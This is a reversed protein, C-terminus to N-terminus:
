PDHTGALEGFIDKADKVIKKAGWATYMGQEWVTTAASSPNGGSTGHVRGCLAEFENKSEFIIKNEGEYGPGAYRWPYLYYMGGGGATTASHDDGLWTYVSLVGSLSTPEGYGYPDIERPSTCAKREEYRKMITAYHENSPDQYAVTTHCFKTLCEEWSSYAALGAGNPTGFGWYNHEANAKLSCEAIAKVFVYEPNVQGERDCIDYLEGLTEKSACFEATAGTKQVYAWAKEVWENKSLVTWVISFHDAQKKEEIGDDLKMYDEIDEVMEGNTDRMMIRLYNGIVRDEDTGRIDEYKGFKSTDRIKDTLEKDTMTRGLVTGEKIFIGDYSKESTITAYPAASSIGDVEPNEPLTNKTRIKIKVKNQTCYTSVAEDKVISEANLQDSAKKSDMTYEEDAEYQSDMVKANEKLNGGSFSNKTIQKFDSMKIKENEPIYDSKKNKSSSKASTTTKTTTGSDSEEDSESGEPEECIFGDIYIINGAIGYKEYQEVFEKYGYITKQLDTWGPYDKEENPKMQDEETLFDKYSNNKGQLSEKGYRKGDLSPLNKINQKFEDELQEYAETNLVLIKAYGVKDKPIKEEVGQTSNEATPITTSNNENEEKSSGNVELQIQRTTDYKYDVNPRYEEDTLENKEEEYTGYELLIGTVPSVVAENGAYGVYEEGEGKSKGWSIRIGYEAGRDWGDSSKQISSSGAENNEYPEMNGTSHTGGNYIEFGDDIKKGLIEIHNNKCLIDGEQLEQGSSIVTCDLNSKIWDALGNALDTHQDDPMVQVNQLAWSVLTACCMNHGGESAQSEVFSRPLGCGHGNVHHCDEGGAGQGMVCYDYGEKNIYECMARTTELFEELSVQSVKQSGDSSEFAYGSSSSSDSSSAAGVQKGVAGESNFGSIGNVTDTKTTKSPKSTDIESGLSTVLDSFLLNQEYDIDGMSHIMAGYENENKDLIRKPYGFSGTDPVLWELLRPTEDTLEEKTFYGLEVSLEKFDRLIYDADLTHTNELMNCATLFDQELSVNSIYDSAKYVQDNGDLKATAKAYSKPVPSLEGDKLRKGEIPGYYDTNLNKSISKRLATIVEATKADGKYAFYKNNLFMNKIKYNTEGRLGNGKQVINGDFVTRVYIRDTTEGSSNTVPEFESSTKGDARGYASWRPKADTGLNEWGLDSYDSVYEARKSVVVNEAEAQEQTGDYYYYGDEDKKIKSSKYKSIDSEETAFNGNSNLVYLIYEGDKTRYKTWREKMMAEYEYDNDVFNVGPEDFFYVNRFWHNTVKYIYPQYTEFSSVDARSTEQLIDFVKEKCVRCITTDDDIDSCRKEHGDDDPFSKVIKYEVYTLYRNHGRERYLDDLAKEMEDKKDKYKSDNVIDAEEISMNGSFDNVMLGNIYSVYAILEYKAGDDKNNWSIKIDGEKSDYIKRIFYTGGEITSKQYSYQGEPITIEVDNTCYRKLELALKREYNLQNESFSKDKNNDYTIDIEHMNNKGLEEEGGNEKVAEIMDNFSMVSNSIDGSRIIRNDDSDDDVDVTNSIVTEKGHICDEDSKINFLKMLRKAEKNSFTNLFDIKQAVGFIEFTPAAEQMEEYTVYNGGDTKYAGIATGDDIKHLLVMVKTDFTKVMDYALDPMLTAQHVALLFELPMGYRGTWGDLSYKMTNSLWGRRIELTPPNEDSNIKVGNWNFVGDGLDSGFYSGVNGIGNDYYIDLLGKGWKYGDNFLLNSTKKWVGAISDGINKFFGWFGSYDGEKSVLNFNAITYVYNDSMLYTFIFESEAKAIKGPEEKKTSATSNSTGNSNYRLLGQTADYTYGSKSAEEPSIYNTIYGDGKLDFGMEELYDLVDYVEQDTIMATTDGGFFASISNGIKRALSKLNEMVMGPMSVLFMAIGIIILIIIVIIAIKILIPGVAKLLSSNKMMQKVVTKDVRQTNQSVEQGGEGGGVLGTEPEQPNNVMGEEEEDM